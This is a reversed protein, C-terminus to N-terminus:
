ASAKPSNMAMGDQFIKALSLLSNSTTSVAAKRAMGESPVYKLGPLLGHPPFCLQSTKLAPEPHLLIPDNSPPPRRVDMPREGPDYGVVSLIHKILGGIGQIRRGAGILVASEFAKAAGVNDGLASLMNGKAHVLALIRGNESGPIAYGSSGFGPQDSGPFDELDKFTTENEGDFDFVPKDSLESICPSQSMSNSRESQCDTNKFTEGNKVYKLSREVFEIIQVADKGRHDGCLLGIM